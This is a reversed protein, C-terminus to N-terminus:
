QGCCLSCLVCKNLLSLIWSALGAHFPRFLQGHDGIFLTVLRFNLYLFNVYKWVPISAIKFFPGCIQRMPNWIQNCLVM